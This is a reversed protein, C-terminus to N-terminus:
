DERDGRVLEHLQIREVGLSDRMLGLVYDAGIGLPELRGPLTVSGLPEAERSIIRFSRHDPDAVSYAEVWFFGDRDLLVQGHAPLDDPFDLNGRRYERERITRVRTNPAAEIWARAHRERLDPTVPEPMHHQRYVRTLRGAPDYTRIEYLDGHAVHFRDAEVLVSASPGYPRMRPGPPFGPLALWYMEPGPFPALSDGGGGGATWRLVAGPARAPARSERWQVTALLVSGDALVGALDVSSAAAAAPTPFSRAFRGEDDLLSVRLLARDFVAISDGRYRAIGDLGRFEGPGEGEGGARHLPRGAGDFFWLERTGGNAVVIRGDDLRLAGAVAFLADTSDAGGAGIVAAPEAAVTWGRGAPWSGASRQVVEVGASDWRGARFPPDDDGACGPGALAACVIVLPRVRADAAM